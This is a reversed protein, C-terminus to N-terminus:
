LDMGFLVRVNVREHHELDLAGDDKEKAEEGKIAFVQPQVTLATWWAKQAYAISPGLYFATSEYEKAKELETKTRLEVGLVVNPTVFYGVGLDTEVAIERESEGKTEFKWEHEGVANFAVLLDGMRKDVILKLEVEAEAPAATWEFYLASGIPDAFSDSLKYKWENSIGGFEFGSARTTQGTTADTQDAALATMNWYWAMQLNPVVGFEFELRQDFRNYFQDRGARWTTWPELEVSGPNLVNSEHTFAFRRESAGADRPSLTTFLVSAGLVIALSRLRFSVASM